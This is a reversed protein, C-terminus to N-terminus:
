DANVGWLIFRNGSTATFTVETAGNLALTHYSGKTTSLTFPATGSVGSDFTLSVSEGNVSVVVNESSWGFAHYHLTTKGSPVTVKVTGKNKASGAKIGNYSEGNIIINAASANSGGETTLEVNSTYTSEWGAPTDDDGSEEIITEDSGSGVLKYLNIAKQAGAYCAFLKSGNNYQLFNRTYTGQAKLTAIGDAIEASFSANADLNEQTRLYNSSSSAACLYGNGTYFAVANAINGKELSLVQVNEAPDLITDETKAIGAQGRNNSNQTTSLAFDYEDAVIIVKSDVTLESTSTVKKYVKPSVIAIDTMDINFKGIVGAEFKFANAPITANKTFTGKDTSVVVKLTTGGLECPACAFWINETSSTNITITNAGSNVKFDGNTPYYFFRGAIPKEATLSVSNIVADGLTLNTLNFVGYATVHQFAMEITESLTNTAYAASLIMATEDVSTASPTQTAPVNITWSEKETSNAVYASAPSIATFIYQDAEDVSATFTVSKGDSSPNINIDKAPAFNSSFKVKSDNSTWLTPYTLGEPTGFAAKTDVTTATFNVTKTTSPVVENKQCSAFVAAAAAIVLISNFIKKM